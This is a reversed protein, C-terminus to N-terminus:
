KVGHRELVIADFGMLNHGVVAARTRLFKALPKALKRRWPWLVVVNKTDGVGVCLLEATLPSGTHTTEVDLAVM